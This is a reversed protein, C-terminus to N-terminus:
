KCCKTQQIVACGWSDGCLVRRVLEDMYEQGPIVWTKSIDKYSGTKTRQKTGEYYGPKQPGDFYPPDCVALDFFNDQVTRMYEMCDINILTSNAIKQQEM